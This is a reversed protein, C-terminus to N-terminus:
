GGVEEDGIFTLGRLQEYLESLWALEKTKHKDMFSRERVQEFAALLMVAQWIKLNFRDILEAPAVVFDLTLAVLTNM